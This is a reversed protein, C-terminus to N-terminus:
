APPKHLEFLAVTAWQRREAVEDPTKMALCRRCTVRELTPRATAPDWSSNAAGCRALANGEGDLYPEHVVDGTTLRLRVALWGLRALRARALESEADRRVTHISVRAVWM